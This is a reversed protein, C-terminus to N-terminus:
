SIRKKAGSATRAAAFPRRTSRRAGNRSPHGSQGRDGTHRLLDRFQLATTSLNHHRSQIIGMPRVLRCGALRIATLAGADVERHVTDFPLLAVGQDLELAQKINEINDFAHLVEVRIGHKKLFRDVTRRIVLGKEFGIYKEGELDAPSLSSREALPHRPSCVLVMEEERWSLTLLERSNRPFSVLGFDATGDLVQEYVQKPHLYDIRIQAHPHQTKFREVLKGMDGLGVSYIAAVHITACLEREGNRISAELEDYQEVIQRAGEFFIRGNPTTQLPRTSRDILTTGLRREIQSVIQSAASQTLHNARAGASFSRQRVVECFVKLAELQM